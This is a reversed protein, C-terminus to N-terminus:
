RVYLWINRGQCGDGVNHGVFAEFTTESGDMRRCDERVHRCYGGRGYWRRAITDAVKRAADDRSEARIRRPPDYTTSTAVKYLQTEFM